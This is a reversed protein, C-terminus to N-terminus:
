DKGHRQRAKKFMRGVLFSTRPTYVYATRETSSARARMRILGFLVLAAHGMVILVFLAGPGFGDIM